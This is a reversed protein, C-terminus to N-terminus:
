GRGGEDLVEFYEDRPLEYTALLDRCGEVGVDAFRALVAGDVYARVIRWFRDSRGDHRYTFASRDIEWIQGTNRIVMDPGTKEFLVNNVDMYLSHCAFYDMVERGAPHEAYAYIIEDAVQQGEILDADYRPEAVASIAMLVSAITTIM